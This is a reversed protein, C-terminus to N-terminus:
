LKFREINLTHVLGTIYPGMTGRGEGRGVWLGRVGRQVGTVSLAHTYGIEHTSKRTRQMQQEM